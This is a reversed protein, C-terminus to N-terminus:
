NVADIDPVSLVITSYSQEELDTIDTDCMSEKDGNNLSRLHAQWLELTSMTKSVHKCNLHQIDDTAPKDVENNLTYINTKNNSTESNSM